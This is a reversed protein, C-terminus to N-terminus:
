TWRGECNPGHTRILSDQYLPPRVARFRDALTNSDNSGASISLRTIVLLFPEHSLALELVRVLNTGGRPASLSPAAAPVDATAEVVQSGTTTIQVRPDTGESTEDLALGTADATARAGAATLKLAYSQGGQEDRRWM